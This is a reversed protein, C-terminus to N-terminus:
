CGHKLVGSNCLEGSMSAIWIKFMHFNGMRDATKGTTCVTKM